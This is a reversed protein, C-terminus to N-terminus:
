NASTSAQLISVSWLQFYQWTTTAYYGTYQNYWELLTLRVVSSFYEDKEKYM